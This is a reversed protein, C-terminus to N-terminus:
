EIGKKYTIVMPIRTGDESHYFVQKSEYKEPDFEVGSRKYVQSTKETIDYKFITPPYIYSTFTYYVETDDEKGSFGSATGHGPLEITKELKGQRDYQMVMSGADKLYNAFIKGGGAAARLVNETEPILDKWNNVGPNEADVTVIRNNPANLNTFIYLKSGNNDIVDHNNDFNDVVKVIKSGPQSLDQIYLENGTTSNAATIV